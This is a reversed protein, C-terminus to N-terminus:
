LYRSGNGQCGRLKKVTEKATCLSKVKFDWSNMKAKTERAQPLTNLSFNSHSLDFLNSSKNDKLIKITEQRVNLDKMWKSNIKTYPTLSHDPKMRRCTATWSDWCWKNFLSKEWQINKGAKDFILQGCLQPDTQPTEIRNWQDIHRNQHWYWATKTIVAKYCLKFDPLTTGWSQKEKEVSGQRNTTKEPEVCIKPNNTGTRQFIDNTNQDPQCQFHLNSQTAYVNSSHKNKQDMLM